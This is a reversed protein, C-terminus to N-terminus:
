ATALLRYIRGRPYWDERRQAMLHDRPFQGRHLALCLLGGVRDASHFTEQVLRYKKRQYFGMKNSANPDLHQHILMDHPADVLSWVADSFDLQAEPPSAGPPTPGPPTSGPLLASKRDTQEKNTSCESKTWCTNTATDLDWCGCTLESACLACCAEPSAVNEHENGGTGYNIGVEGVTCNEVRPPASGLQHRWAFDFNVTDRATAASLFIASLLLSRLMLSVFEVCNFSSGGRVLVGINRVKQRAKKPLSAIDSSAQPIM